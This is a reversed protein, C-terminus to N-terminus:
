TKKRRKIHLPPPSTWGPRSGRGADVDTHHQDAHWDPDLPGTSYEAWVGRLGGLMQAFEYRAREDAAQYRWAGVRWQCGALRIEERHDWTRGRLTAQTWDKPPM